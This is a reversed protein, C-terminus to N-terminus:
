QPNIPKVYNCIDLRKLMSAIQRADREELLQIVDHVAESHMKRATRKNTVETENLLVLPPRRRSRPNTPQFFTVYDIKGDDRIGSIGQTTVSFRGGQETTIETSAVRNGRNDEHTIANVGREPKM